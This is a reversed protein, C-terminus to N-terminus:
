RLKDPRHSTGENRKKASSVKGRSLDITSLRECWEYHKVACYGRSCQRVGRDSTGPESEKEREWSAATACWGVATRSRCCANGRKTLNLMKESLIVAM